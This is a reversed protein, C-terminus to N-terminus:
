PSRLITLVGLRGCSINMFEKMDSRVAMALHFGRGFITVNAHRNRQGIADSCKAVVEAFIMRGALASIFFRNDGSEDDSGSM